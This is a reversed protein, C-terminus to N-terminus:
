KGVVKRAQWAMLFNRGTSLTQGLINNEACLKGSTAYPGTSDATIVTFVICEDQQTYRGQTFETQYFSGRLTGDASINRIILTTESPPSDPSFFLAVKWQGILQEPLVTNNINQSSESPKLGSHSSCASMTLTVILILLLKFTNM